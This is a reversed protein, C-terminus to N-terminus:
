GKYRRILEFIADTGFVLSEVPVREDASHITKIFDFDPPLKMPLYGYTQIGLRAFLRGDTAGSLLLPIPVAKPDAERIIHSLTEFLGMNPAGPGADHRVVELELDFGAADKIERVIDDPTYGPLLRGDLDLSIHSPIVNVKHGGRVVTANVTNHLLSDLYAAEQGLYNLMSDTLWPKLLLRYLLRKPFPFAEVMAEVMMRTERTIHAPLRKSNLRTVLNGLKAMAGDRMPQSGHGGPGNLSARMWCVQKEAIQIPYFNRDGVAMSYGGFESIGYRIGEFEGPHNEVLFKSGLDSGTEEDSLVALVMDGAPVAGSAKARLLAALMMAVGGKMDLAGRGWVSGDVIRGEFPPYTWNQHATTVVDVHGHMLFPPAEGRGPLRAILNPRNPDAQLIKTDIGAETLLGNIYAVCEAENGPPNTTDFRILNQLLEEPREQIASSNPATKSM